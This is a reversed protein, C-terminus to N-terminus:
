EREGKKPLSDVLHMCYDNIDSPAYEVEFRLADLESKSQRFYDRIAQEWPLDVSFPKHDFELGNHRQWHHRWEHALTAVTNRPDLDTQAVIIGFCGDYHRGDIQVEYKGPELYYGSCGKGCPLVPKAVFIVEPVVLTRDHRRLWNVELSRAM